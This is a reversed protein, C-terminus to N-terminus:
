APLSGILNTSQSTVQKRITYIEIASLRKAENFRKAGSGGVGKPVTSRHEHSAFFSGRFM